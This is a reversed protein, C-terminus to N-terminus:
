ARSSSLSHTTNRQDGFRRIEYVSKTMSFYCLCVLSTHEVNELCTNLEYEYTGAVKHCVCLERKVVNVWNQTNKKKSNQRNKKRDNRDSLMDISINLFRAAVVAVM